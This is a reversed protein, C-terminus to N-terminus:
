QKCPSVASACACSKLEEENNLVLNLASVSPLLGAQSAYSATERLRCGRYYKQASVLPLRIIEMCVPRALSPFRPSAQQFM